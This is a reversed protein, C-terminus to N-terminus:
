TEEEMKTKEAFKNFNRVEEDKTRSTMRFPFAGIAEQRRRLGERPKKREDDECEEVIHQAADQTGTSCIYEGTTESLHFRRFYVRFPGHGTLLCMAKHNWGRLSTDVTGITDHTMRGTEGQDWEIQRRAMSAKTKEKKLIRGTLPTLV